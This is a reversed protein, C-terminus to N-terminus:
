RIRTESQWHKGVLTQAEMGDARQWSAARLGDKVFHRSLCIDCLSANGRGHPHARGGLGPSQGRGRKAGKLCTVLTLLADSLYVWYFWVAIKDVHASHRASYLHSFIIILMTQMSLFCYCTVVHTDSKVSSTFLTSEGPPDHRM